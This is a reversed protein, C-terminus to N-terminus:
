IKRSFVRLSYRSTTGRVECLVLDEKALTSLLLLSSSLLLLLLFVMEAPRLLAAAVVVLVLVLVLLLAWGCPFSGSKHQTGHGDDQIQKAHHPLATLQCRGLM